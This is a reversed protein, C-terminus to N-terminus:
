HMAVIARHSHVMKVIDYPTGLHELMEIAHVISISVGISRDDLWKETRGGDGDFVGWSSFMRQAPEIM